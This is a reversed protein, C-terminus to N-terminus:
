RGLQHFIAHGRRAPWRFIYQVDLLKPATEPLAKFPAAKKIAEIAAADLKKDGSSSLLSLNQVNGNSAIMFVVKIQHERSDQSKEPLWTLDIRSEIDKKYDDYISHFDSKMSKEPQCLARPSSISFYVSLITLSYVFLSRVM